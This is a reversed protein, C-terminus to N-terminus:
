ETLKGTILRVAEVGIPTGLRLLAGGSAHCHDCHDNKSETICDCDLCLTARSFKIALVPKPCEHGLLRLIFRAIM